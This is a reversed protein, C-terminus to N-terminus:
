NCRCQYVTGGWKGGTCTGTYGVMASSGSACRGGYSSCSSYQSCISFSVGPCLNSTGSTACCLQTNCSQQLAAQNGCVSVSNNTCSRSTTVKGCVSDSTPTCSQQTVAKTGACFSDAVTAGDSRRCVVTRNQVGSLSVKNCTASRIEVATNPNISCSATRTQTGGGCSKSCGTWSSYVWVGTGGTCAGWNGYQWTGTGGQCAGYAGINWAYTFNIKTIDTSTYSVTSGVSNRVQYRFKYCYGQAGAFTYQTAAPSETVNADVFAGYTGCALTIPDLIASSVLLLYDGASNSMGSYSDLGRDVKVTVPTTTQVSNFHSISGGFPPEMNIKAISSPEIWTSVNGAKDTARFRFKYAAGSVGNISIPSCATSLTSWPTFTGVTGSSVSAQSIQLECRELGSLADSASVTVAIEAQTRWGDAYNITAIPPNKDLIISAAVSPTLTDEDGKFRMYLKKVGDAGVLSHAETPVCPSWDVANTPDGPSSTLGLAYEVVGNDLNEPCFINLSVAENNTYPYGGNIVFNGDTNEYSTSDYNITQSLVSTMNNNSDKFRVYVTHSGDGSLVMTKTAGCAEWNTPPNTEQYAVLIPEGALDVPCTITLTILPQTVPSPEVISFFGGLPGSGVPKVEGDDNWVGNCNEDRDHDDVSPMYPDPFCRLKQALSALVMGDSRRIRLSIGTTNFYTSFGAASPLYTSTTVLPSDCDLGSLVSTWTTPTAQFEVACTQPSNGLGPGSWGIFFERQNNAHSLYFNSPPNSDRTTISWSLPGMAGISYSVTSTTNLNESSFVGLRFEDGNRLVDTLPNFPLWDSEGAFKKEIFASTAGSIGAQVYTEIGSITVPTSYIVEDLNQYVKDLIVFANPMIDLPVCAGSVAKYPYYCSTVYPPAWNEGDWTQEAVEAHPPLDGPVVPRTNADCSNGMGTGNMTYNLSCSSITCGGWEGTKVSEWTQTANAAGTPYPECVRVDAVCDGSPSMSYNVFCGSVVCPGWAATENEGWIEYAHANPIANCSRTRSEFKLELPDALRPTESILEYTGPVETFIKCIAVGNSDSPTCEYNIAGPGEIKIVPNMGEIPNKDSDLIVIAVEVSSLPTDAYAVLSGPASGEMYSNTDFFLAEKREATEYLQGTSLEMMTKNASILKKEGLDAEFYVLSWLESTAECESKGNIDTQTCVINYSTSKEGNALIQVDVNAAPKQINLNTVTVIFQVPDQGDAKARGKTMQLTASYKVEEVDLAMQCALLTSFTVSMLGIKTVRVAFRPLCSIFILLLSSVHRHKHDMNISDSSKKM